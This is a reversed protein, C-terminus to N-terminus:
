GAQAKEVQTADVLWSFIESRKARSMPKQNSGAYFCLLQQEYCHGCQPRSRDCIVKWERCAKCNLSDSQHPQIDHAPHSPCPLSPSQAQAAEYSSGLWWPRLWRLLHRSIGLSIVTRQVSKAVERRAKAETETQVTCLHAVSGGQLRISKRINV